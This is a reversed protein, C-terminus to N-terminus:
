IRHYEKLHCSRQKMSYFQTLLRFFRFFLLLDIATLASFTNEHLAKSDAFSARNPLLLLAQM